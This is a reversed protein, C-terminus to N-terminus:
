SISGTWKQVIKFESLYSKAVVRLVTYVPVALVMGMIGAVQSGMLIVIFIELPHALVSTSFIYPQLFFNDVMQVALFVIGIKIILPLLVTYFDVELNSSIAIFIGFVAGIIPGLYPVLNIIAAFFGILLAYKIGLLSLAITVFTTIITIQLAIGAFYRTLLRSISNIINTTETEYQSPAAALIAETFLDKDKLFFFAIFIVAFISVFVSGLTSFLNNLTKGVDQLKFWNAFANRIQEELQTLSITPSDIRELLSNISAIPEDFSAVVRRYDITSFNDLQDIMMPVFLAVVLVAILLFFVLTIAAAATAGIQFKGIKIREELFRTTPRGALSVIWAVLIYAVIGRFYYLLGVGVLGGIIIAITSKKIKM